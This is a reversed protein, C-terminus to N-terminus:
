GLDLAMITEHDRIYLRKGDIAPITWASKKLLEVKSHVEIGEPTATALSLVGDEDLMIFKGDAHLMTLKKFGRERWAIKGTPVHMATMFHGADSGSCGYIYEGVRIANSQGLTMKKTAWVEEVVYKGDIRAIKLGRSGAEGGSSVFLIGDEGFIPTLINTKWQNEHKHEWLLDGSKPEIGVIKDEALLAIQDAGDVNIVIPSSYSDVFNHRKWRVSGTVLDLSMIGCKSGGAAIVLTDGYVIPSSSFGFNPSKAGFKEVLNHSWVPKGTTLDICHLHGTMGLTYVRGGHVLPTARPGKGFRTEIGKLMPAAYKFEWATKGDSANLAIVIEDTGDRYMTYLRGNDVAISSYGEGLSRSWIRKPGEESWKSALGTAASTFNRNPGGWQAWQAHSTTISIFVGAIATAVIAGRRLQAAFTKGKDQIM